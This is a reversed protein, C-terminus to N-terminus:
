SRPPPPLPTIEANGYFVNCAIWLMPMVPGRNVGFCNPRTERLIGGAPRIAGMGIGTLVGHAIGTIAGSTVSPRLGTITFLGQHLRPFVISGYM